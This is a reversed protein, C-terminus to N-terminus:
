LPATAAELWSRTDSDVLPGIEALVRAHYRDVWAHEGASLMEKVILRRDIPALTLAQFGLMPREGGEIEDPGTVLELNEIRIGHSGAKYYGPENSVIMGPELAVHGTKAIRQPGEHVSLYSGVGHGTGHDFDLGAKWLDIRALADIQAGSTGKPFRATAIAIHGKLVLTFHRKMEDAVAGVALTRTIDTTGDEYQAGSDILFLSDPPIVRNSKRDVRYHCIAANPGAASISDFSIEKLAGTEARFAELREAVGIEDLPGDLIARDFWALFRAYAAGDRLHAARAGAIEAETKVAKARTIPDAGEKITGGADQVASALSDGAWDPDLMVSAGARGMEALAPVLAAPEEVEALGALHDRVANSLKRGDIFLRPKGSAPLIAFSLPLPTHAVDSGRINFLWAISDPQTLVFADAKAEGVKAGMRAIKDSAAEGALADPHIVVAGLPPAPRDHWVADVPNGSVAVLEAGAATCAAKLRRTGSITHLMPDYGLKHGPKLTTVLWDAPPTEILHMPAFVQTDVQERVQITYRGDVFIAADEALVVAIGASGAFGTLWELRADSPPVYEGQHADGRPVLFGDLKRRALEQRLAACRASGVSPDIMSDFTQFM